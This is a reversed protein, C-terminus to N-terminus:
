KKLSQALSLTNKGLKYFIVTDYKKWPRYFEMHFEKNGKFLRIIECYKKNVSNNERWFPSVILQKPYDPLVIGVQKLM